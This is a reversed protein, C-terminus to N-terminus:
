IEAYSEDVDEKYDTLFALKSLQLEDSELISKIDAISILDNYISILRILTIM